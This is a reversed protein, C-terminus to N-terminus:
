CECRGQNSSHSERVQNQLNACGAGVDVVQVVLLFTMQGILTPIRIDYIAIYCNTRSVSRKSGDMTYIQRM